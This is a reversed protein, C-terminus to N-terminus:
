AEAASRYDEGSTLIAWVIRATKAAQAVVAVKVPRRALIGNLWPSAKEPKARAHRLWASAGLVLLRRLGRDGAKSIHGLRMKDASSHHRPTLGIWAAFNRASGFQSADGVAALVAHATIPGVGPIKMLRRARPDARAEDEITDGLTTVADHLARWQELLLRLTPLLAAPIAEDGADILAYLRASGAAGQPAIIGMEALQSRIHAGLQSRQRVLLDRSKHLGREGQQKVTKIPVFHTGPRLSAEFIAEADRMDNKNRKLFPKVHQPPILLVEHGLAQLERAWHHASGCAELVVVAPPQRAFFELFQGRRLRKQVKCTRREDEGHVQFVSKATDVAFRIIQEV